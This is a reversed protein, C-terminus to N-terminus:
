LAINKIIELIPYDDFNNKNQYSKAKYFLNIFITKKKQVYLKAKNQHNRLVFVKISSLTIKRNLKGSTLLKKSSLPLKRHIFFTTVIFIVTSKLFLLYVM